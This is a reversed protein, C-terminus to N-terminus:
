SVSRASNAPKNKAQKAAQEIDNVLGDLFIEAAQVQARSLGKEGNLKTNTDVSLSMLRSVRMCRVDTVANLKGELEDMVEKSRPHSTTEIIWHPRGVICLGDGGINEEMVKKARLFGLRDNFTEPINGNFLEDLTVYRRESSPNFAEELADIRECVAASRVKSAVQSLTSRLGAIVAQVGEPKVAEAYPISVGPAPHLHSYWGRITEVPIAPNRAVENHYAENGALYAAEAQDYYDRYASLRLLRHAMNQTAQMFEQAVEPNYFEGHQSARLGGVDFKFAQLVQLDEVLSKIIAEPALGDPLALKTMDVPMGAQGMMAALSSIFSRRDIEPLATPAAKGAERLSDRYGRAFARGLEGWLGRRSDDIKDTDDTSM